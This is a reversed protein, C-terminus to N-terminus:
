FGNRFATLTQKLVEVFAVINPLTVTIYSSREAALEDIRQLNATIHDCHDIAHNLNWRIKERTNRQPERSSM